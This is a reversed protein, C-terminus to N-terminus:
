SRKALIELLERRRGTPILTRLEGAGVQGCGITDGLFTLAVFGPEVSVCPIRHGLLLHQLEQTSIMVRSRTVLAGLAILFVSTPKIGSPFWRAMRLGIPRSAAIGPLPDATTAWVEQQSDHVHLRWEPPWIVGFRDRYLSLASHKLEESAPL